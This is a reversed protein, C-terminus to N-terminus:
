PRGGGPTSALAPLEVTGRTSAQVPAAGTGRPVPALPLAEPPLGEPTLGIWYKTEEAMGQIRDLQAKAERWAADVEGLQAELGDLRAKLANAREPAVGFMERVTAIQGKIHTQASLVNDCQQAMVQERKLLLKWRRELQTQSIREGQAGLHARGYLPGKMLPSAEPIEITVGRALAWGLLLECCPRQDAYETDHGMDVGWIGIHKFGLLLALGQMYAISSTLYPAGILRIVDEIPYRVSNPLDERAEHLYVQGDFARLWDVHGKSRRLGWEYIEPSHMDFWRTATGKPVFSWGDNVGWIEWEPDNFPAQDRHPKAFGVIAVKERQRPLVSQM